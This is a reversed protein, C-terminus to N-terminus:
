VYNKLDEEVELKEEETPYYYPKWCHVVAVGSQELELEEMSGLWGRRDVLTEAKTNKYQALESWSGVSFKSYLFIFTLASDTWESPKPSQALKDIYEWDLNKINEYAEIFKLRNFISGGCGHSGVVSSGLYNYLDMYWGCGGIGSLIHPPEGKIERIFWVDDEFNMVWDVNSLTTTCADYVLDLWALITELNFAPRGSNPDNRGNIKTRGYVCNFKKAVPLLIDSNDEYLAVPATPYFKRFQNLAHYCAEIRYGSQYFLGLNM